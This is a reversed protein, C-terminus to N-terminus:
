ISFASAVGGYRSTVRRKTLESTICPERCTKATRQMQTTWNIKTFQVQVGALSTSMSLAQMDSLLVSVFTLLGSALQPRSQMHQSKQESSFSQYNKATRWMATKYNQNWHSRIQILKSAKQIGKPCRKSAKQVSKPHRKSGPVNWSGFKIKLSKPFTEAVSCDDWKSVMKTSKVVQQRDTKQRKKPHTM